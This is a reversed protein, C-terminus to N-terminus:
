WQMDIQIVDYKNLYQLISENRAISYRSFIEKSDAGKSYYATLMDATISKGFRRPRSNCILAQKTGIVKNTYALMDTKDVYIESDAAVKFASSDPNVFRGM